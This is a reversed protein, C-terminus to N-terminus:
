FKRFFFLGLTNPGCHCSITGGAMTEYVEDFTLIESILPKITNLMGQNEETFTHAIFLRSTDISEKNCLRDSIYNKLGNELKGRYKKDVTMLGRSVIISPKIKLVSSALAQVTTCRGGKHLYALTDIIFSTDLLNIKTLIENYIDKASMGSAAMKAAEIVLHGIAMSLNRSDVLYINDFDHAAIRANQYCSSMEASIIFHIVADYKPSEEEYVDLYEAVNVASTRCMGKGGEVYNFIDNSTVEVGDKLIKDGMVISLPVVRINHKQILGAPLDCTSDAILKINM